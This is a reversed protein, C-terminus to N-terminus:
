GAYVRLDDFWVEATSDDENGRYIGMKFYNEDSSMTQREHREVTREGNEWAEVFGSSGFGVNLAYNVWEGRRVPGIVKKPGGEGGVYLEGDPSVELALPPSGSGSHWQMVIFWSGDVPDPFDEAFRLSFEYWREDGSRTLMADEHAAVESREGGGFDPVDGPRVVFKAAKGGSLGDVLGLAHGASGIDECGSNMFANQCTSWSGFGGDFSDAFLKTLGSPVVSRVLPEVPALPALPELLAGLDSPPRLASAPMRDRERPEPQVPVPVLGPGATLVLDTRLERDDSTLDPDQVSQYTEGAVLLVAVLGASAMLHRM